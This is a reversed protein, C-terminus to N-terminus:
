KFRRIQTKISDTIVFLTTAFIIVIVTIGYYVIVAPLFIITFIINFLKVKKPNIDGLAQYIYDDIMPYLFGAWMNHSFYVLIWLACAVCANLILYAWLLINVFKEGKKKEIFIIVYKKKFTM